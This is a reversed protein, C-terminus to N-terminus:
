RKWGQSARQGRADPDAAVLGSSLRGLLAAVQRDELSPRAVQSSAVVAFYALTRGGQTIPVAVADDTPLGDTDVGLARGHRTVSGDAQLVTAPLRGDLVLRCADAGLVEAVAREADAATGPAFGGTSGASAARQLAELHGAQRAAAARQRGGWWSLQEVAAGVLVLLVVTWVDGAGLVRLSGFPRTWFFDYALGSTLAAVLGAPPRGASAVAAVVLVLVLAVHVADMSGRAATLLGAVTPGLVLAVLWVPGRRRVWTTEMGGPQVGRAGGASFKM